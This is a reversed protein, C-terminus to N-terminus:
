DNTVALSCIGVDIAGSASLANGYYGKTDSVPVSYARERFLWKIALTGTSDNLPTSNGHPFAARVRARSL